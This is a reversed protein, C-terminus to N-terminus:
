ELKEMLTRVFTNKEFAPHGRKEEKKGKFTERLTSQQSGVGVGSIKERRM